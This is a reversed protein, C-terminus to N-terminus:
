FPENEYEEDSAIFEYENPEFVEDPIIECECEELNCIHTREHREESIPSTYQANAFPYKKIFNLYKTEVRKRYDYIDKAKIKRKIIFDVISKVFMIRNVFDEYNSASKCFRFEVTSSNEFNVSEYRSDSSGWCAMTKMTNLCYRNFSRGAYKTILENNMNVFCDIASLQESTFINRPFHIHLGCNDTRNIGYRELTNYLEKWKAVNLHYDLTYPHSVVEFGNGEISGDSKFYFDKHNTFIGIVDRLQNRDRAGTIELEIGMFMKDRKNTSMFKYKYPKYGYNLIENLPACDCCYNEVVSSRYSKKLIRDCNGCKFYKANFCEICFDDFGVKITKNKPFYNHCNRCKNFKEHLCHSCYKKNKYKTLQEEFFLEHCGYCKVKSKYCRNCYCNNLANEKAYFSYCRECHYYKTHCEDCIEDGNTKFEKKCNKCTTITTYRLSDWIKNYFKSQTKYLNELDESNGWYTFVDKIKRYDIEM